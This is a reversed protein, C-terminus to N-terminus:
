YKLDIYANTIVKSIFEDDWDLYSAAAMAAISAGSIM